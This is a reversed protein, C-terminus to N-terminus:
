NHLLDVATDTLDIHCDECWTGNNNSHTTMWSCQLCRLLSPQRPPMQPQTTHLMWQPLISRSVCLMTSRWRRMQSGAACRNSPRSRRAANLKVLARWSIGGSLIFPTSPQGMLVIGHWQHTFCCTICCDNSSTTLFLTPTVMGLCHLTSALRVMYRTVSSWLWLPVAGIICAIRMIHSFSPNAETVNGVDTVSRHLQLCCSSIAQMYGWRGSNRQQQILM